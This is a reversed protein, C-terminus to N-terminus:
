CNDLEMLYNIFKQLARGRHSIKNKEVSDFEAFSRTYGTPIFIPDYGFGNFGSKKQAIHGDVRGEFSKYSGDPQALVIVCAFHAARNESKTEEIEHLLKDMGKNFDRDPAYRASYVGPRGGIADVCLGSDDAICPINQQKAAAIAKIYANEEFTTGTEEVDPLQLDNGSLVSIGLPKLMNKIESIKGENHSAFILKNFKQM